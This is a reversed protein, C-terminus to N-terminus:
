PIFQDIFQLYGREGGRKNWKQVSKRLRKLCALLESLTLTQSAPLAVAATEGGLAERGLRWEGMQKVREYVQQALPTAPPRQAAQHKQEAQYELVLANLAKEVDYDMLESQQRYVSIIAAELNQFVDLYEEEFTTM